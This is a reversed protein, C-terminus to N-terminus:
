KVKPTSDASAASAAPTAMATKVKAGDKLTNSPNRLVEDGNALGKLVAYDGHRPDREGLTLETKKLAGGQIRWAFTHDGNRMLAATPVMLAATSSTEIHGEAYLGSVSPLNGKDFGVIVAVQRTTPDAAADIRKITGTFQQEGYGNINFSVSQGLKVTSIQDASVFGDLRVSTPDIVKVLEKGIAATDGASTKRESVVGDFPARVETRQLQQRATVVRSDAAAKDSQATNRHIEADEVQQASTMGSTRLTKLRQYQREAQDLAESAARASAQASTLGDRISTDDLRMLLDGRKVSEGNEKYVQLVVASVEARLDARREPQISGTIVVGTALAGNRVTLVDEPSLLLPPDAAPTAAAKAESSAPDGKQCAALSLALAIALPLAPFVRSMIIEGLSSRTSAMEFDGPHGM